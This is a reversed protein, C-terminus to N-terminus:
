LMLLDFYDATLALKIDSLKMSVFEVIIKITAGHM